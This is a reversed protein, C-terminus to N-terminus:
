GQHFMVLEMIRVPTNMVTKPCAARIANIRTVVEPDSKWANMTDSYEMYRGLDNVTGQSVGEWLYIDAVRSDWIPCRAPDIFHLLKSAGIYSSNAFHAVLMMETESPLEGGHRIRNLLNVLRQIEPITMSFVQALNPITPMWGYVVHLYTVVDFWDLIGRNEVHHLICSYAQVYPDNAIAVQIPVSYSRDIWGQLTM